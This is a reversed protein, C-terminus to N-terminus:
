VYNSGASKIFEVLEFYKKQNPVNAEFKNRFIELEDPKFVAVKELKEEEIEDESLIGHSWAIFRRLVSQKSRYSSLTGDRKKHRIPYMKKSFINKDVNKMCSFFYDYLPAVRNPDTMYKEEMHFLDKLIRSLHLGFQHTPDISIVWDTMNEDSNFVLKHDPSFSDGYVWRFLDSYLENDLYRDYGRNSFGVVGIKFWDDISGGKPYNLRGLYNEPCSSLEHWFTSARTKFSKLTLNAGMYMVSFPDITTGGNSLFEVVDGDFFYAKLAPIEKRKDSRFYTRQIADELLFDRDKPDFIIKKM